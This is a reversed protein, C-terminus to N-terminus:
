RFECQSEDVILTKDWALRANHDFEIFRVNWNTYSYCSNRRDLSPKKLLHANDRKWIEELQKATLHCEIKKAGYYPYWQKEDTCKVRRRAWEVYRAWPNRKRWEDQAKM